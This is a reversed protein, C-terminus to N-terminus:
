RVGSWNMPGGLVAAQDDRQALGHQVLGAGVDGVPVGRVRVPRQVDAHVQRQPLGGLGGQDALDGPHELAGAQWGCSSCSSTVSLSRSPGSPRCTSAILESAAIPM